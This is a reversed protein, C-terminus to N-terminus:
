DESLQRRLSYVLPLVQGAPGDEEGAFHDVYRGIRAQWAEDAPDGVLAAM